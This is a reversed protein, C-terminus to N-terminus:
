FLMDKVAIIGIFCGVSQYLTEYVTCCSGGGKCYFCISLLPSAFNWVSVHACTIPFIENSSWFPNVVLKKHVIYHIIIEVM